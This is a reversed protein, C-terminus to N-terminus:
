TYSGAILVVSRGREGRLSCLRGDLDRLELDPALSGVAPAASAFAAQNYRDLYRKGMQAAVTPTFILSLSIAATFLTKM